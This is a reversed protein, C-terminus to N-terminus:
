QREVAGIDCAGVPAPQGRQDAPDCGSVGANVLPSTSTPLMYRTPGVGLVLEGLGPSGGGLVDGAADTFVCARELTGIFNGGISFLEGSCDLPAGSNAAVVTNQLLVQAGDTALIGGAGTPGDATGLSTNGVITVSRIEVATGASIFVGGAEPGTNEAITSDEVRGGADVIMLGGARTAAGNGAITSQLILHDFGSNIRVGGGNSGCNNRVESRFLTLRPGNVMIGGGGSQGGGVTCGTGTADNDEVVCNLVNLYGNAGHAYVGGGWFDARNSAIRCDSLTIAYAGIGDISIAGGTGGAIGSVSGDRLTVRGIWINGSTTITFIREGSQTQGIITTNRGDGRLTVADHTLPLEGDLNYSGAPVVILVPDGAQHTNTEEIAARLSCLDGRGACTRDGPNADPFDSTTNVVYQTPLACAPVLLLGALWVYRALRTSLAIWTLTSPRKM